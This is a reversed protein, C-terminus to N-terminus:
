PSREAGRCMACQCKFGFRKALDQQRRQTNKFDDASLLGHCYNITIEEGAAIARLARCGEQSTGPMQANPQCDHNILCSLPDCRHGLCMMEAKATNPDQGGDVFAFCYVMLECGM